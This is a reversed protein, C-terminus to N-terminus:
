KKTTKQAKAKSKSKGTKKERKDKVKDARADKKLRADVCKYPGRPRSVKGRKGKSMVTLQTRKREKRMAKKYTKTLEKVKESHELNNNDMVNEAHKRAKEMRREMRRHKRIKAEAVKKITRVNMENAQKKYFAVQDKTVPLPKLCHKKEDDAFWDPLDSDNFTYRNWAWDELQSRKKSSYIMEEGLALQAPNLKLKKKKPENPENKGRKAVNSNEGLFETEEDSNCIDDEEDFDNKDPIDLEDEKTEEDSWADKGEHHIKRKGRTSKSFDVVSLEQPSIEMEGENKGDVSDDDMGEDDDKPEGLLESLGDRDFWAATRNVRREDTTMGTEENNVLENDSLDEEENGEADEDEDENERTEWDGNTFDEDEDASDYQLPKTNVAVLEENDFIEPMEVNDGSIKNVDLKKRIKALSFLNVDDSILMSDGEQIMDMKKAEEFKSKVKNERRKKRKDASKEEDVVAKIQKEVEEQELAAQEEETLIHPVENDEEDQKKEKATKELIAKRWKFIVRLEAPGLVKIDKLYDRIDDTTLPDTQWRPDDIVIQSAKAITMIHDSSVLYDSLKITSTATINNEEYGLPKAKKSKKSIIQNKLSIGAVDEDSQKFVQKADLYEAPVKAPKRYGECVMFIEASEMRSAAPKWIHVRRFLKEFVDVLAGHDASRFVKTIFFGNKKLVQTALKLAMLVLCNQQFADHIWTMGVNPAGDHLVCDALWTNLEKRIRQRTTEHTIDGVFTICNKIPKIPALDVGICISSAPMNQSAVQLWGGPAACLDVLARSNQLFEFRKNLQLLKYAARSRYGAEKALQYFKDKRQKGTKAKKGMVDMSDFDFPDELEENDDEAPEPLIWIHKNKWIQTKIMNQGEDNKILDEKKESNEGDNTKKKKNRIVRLEEVAEFIFGLELEVEENASSYDSVGGNCDDSESFEIPSQPVPCQTLRSKCEEYKIEEDYKSSWGQYHIKFIKEEKEGTVKLIKALFNTGQHSCYISSDEELKDLFPFEAM